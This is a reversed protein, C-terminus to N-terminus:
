NAVTSPLYGRYPERYPERYAERYPERYPESGAAAQRGDRWVGTTCVGPM